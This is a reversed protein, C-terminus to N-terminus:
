SHIRKPEGVVVFPAWYTPNVWEPHDVDNMVDLIAARMADAGSMKSTEFHQFVRTMLVKTADDDVAWHSVLLAGCGAHIFAQALGSLAAGGPKGGSATNCASLVVWNANIKLQTVESATLLGDDELSPREPVAFLLAPEAKLRAFEEVEGALLGHTAFYLVRYDSLDSQKINSETAMRGKIIEAESGGLATMVARVEPGTAPLPSAQALLKADAIGDRYLDSLGRQEAISNSTNGSFSYAIDAYARMPKSPETATRRDRLLKLSYVTPLITIAASKILWDVDQPKLGSPDRSVLVHPPLSAIAGSLVFLLHNKDEILNQITGITVQYCRYALSVDIPTAADPTLQSRLRTAIEDLEGDAVNIQQWQKADRTVCWIYSKGSARDTQVSILAETEALHKQLEVGTIYSAKIFEFYEPHKERLSKELRRLKLEERSIVDSLTQFEASKATTSSTNAAFTTLNSLHREVLAKQNQYTRLSEQGIPDSIISRSMYEVVSKEATNTSILQAAAFSKEFVDPSSPLRSMVALYTPIRVADDIPIADILRFAHDLNQKEIWYRALCLKARVVESSSASYYGELSKLLEEITAIDVGNLAADSEELLELTCQAVQVSRPGFLQKAANLAEDALQDTTHGVNRRFRRYELLSRILSGGFNVKDRKAKTIALEFAKIAENNDKEIAYARALLLHYDATYAPNLGSVGALIEIADNAVSIAEQYEGIQYLSQALQLYTAALPIINFGIMKDLANPRNVAVQVSRRFLKKAQSIQRLQIKILALGNCARVFYQPLDSFGDELSDSIGGFAKQITRIGAKYTAEANEWDSLARFIDARQIDIIAGVRTDKYNDMLKSYYQIKNELVEEASKYDGTYILADAYVDYYYEEEKATIGRAFLSRGIRAMDYYRQEIHSNWFDAELRDVSQAEATYYGLLPSLCLSAGSSTLLLSVVRRSLLM